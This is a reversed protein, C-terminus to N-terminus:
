PRSAVAVQPGLLGVRVDIEIAPDAYAALARLASPSYTRLSSVLGDHVVPLFPVFPAMTALRLLHLPAPPRPLDILVLRDAVRTGEAIVRAALAPPLRHLALALVALDFTGDAADVDTADMTRVTVRPDSGLPGAAMAAVSEADGDAVTVHATPHMELLASSLEGRGAGLHLVHPDPVDAIEDLVLYAFRQHDGFWRGYDRDVYEQRDTELLRDLCSARPGGRPLRDISREGM